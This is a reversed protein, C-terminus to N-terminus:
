GRDRVGESRAIIARREREATMQKEMAGEPGNASNLINKIEYRHVKIGWV